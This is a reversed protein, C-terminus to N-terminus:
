ILSTVKAVHCCSFICGKGLLWSISRPCDIHLDVYLLAFSQSHVVLIDCLESREEVVLEVSEVLEDRRVLRARVRPIAIGSCVFNSEVILCRLIQGTLLKDNRKNICVTRLRANHSTTM